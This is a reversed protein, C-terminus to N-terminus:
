GDGLANSQVFDILAHELTGTLLRGKSGTRLGMLVGPLTEDAWIGHGAVYTLATALQRPLSQTLWRATLRTGITWHEIRAQRM